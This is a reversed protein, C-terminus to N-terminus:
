SALRVKRVTVTMAELRADSRYVLRVTLTGDKCRWVGSSGLLRLGRAIWDAHLAWVVGAIEDLAAGAVKCRLSKKRRGRM